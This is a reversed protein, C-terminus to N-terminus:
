ALIGVSGDIALVVPNNARVRMNPAGPRTGVQLGGQYCRKDDFQLVSMSFNGTDYLEASPEDPGIPRAVYSSCATLIAASALITIRSLQGMIEKHKTNHPPTRYAIAQFM